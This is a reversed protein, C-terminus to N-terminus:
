GFVLQVFRRLLQATEPTESLTKTFEELEMGSITKIYEPYAIVRRILDHRELEPHFQTGFIPKGPFVFAQNEVRASSAMRVAGDPLRDVIDQHGIQVLFPSGLPGFLPDSRGEETLMMWHTGLEARQIDTVVEGGLARSFAQFGWCSAFTPKGTEFLDRFLEMAPALWEGGRVVSYDGSGGVLTGDVQSLLRTSPPGSILDHVLVNREPCGLKDAFCEIEHHRMPDNPNRVQLLLFRPSSM